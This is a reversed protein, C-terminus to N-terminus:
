QNRGLLVGCIIWRETWSGSSTGHCEPLLPDIGMAPYWGFFRLVFFRLYLALSLSNDVCKFSLVFLQFYRFRCGLLQQCGARQQRSCRATERRYRLKQKCCAHILGQWLKKAHWILPTCREGNLFNVHIDFCQVAIRATLIVKFIRKFIIFSNDHDFLVLVNIVKRIYKALFDPLVSYAGWRPRPRLGLPFLIQHMKAKFESM